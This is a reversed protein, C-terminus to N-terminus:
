NMFDNKKLLKSYLEQRTKLLIVCIVQVQVGKQPAYGIQKLDNRRNSDGLLQQTRHPWGLSYVVMETYNANGCM